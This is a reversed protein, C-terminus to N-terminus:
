VQTEHVQGRLYAHEIEPLRALLDAASGQLVIQGRNIVYARDACLLIKNAHQEVVM